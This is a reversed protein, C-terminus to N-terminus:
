QFYWRLSLYPNSMFQLDSTISLANSPGWYNIYQIEGPQIAHDFYRLKSIYGNFGGNMAVYVDGYNQKPVDSLQHLKVLTGNIYVSLVNGNVIIIVNVWKNLPINTIIIEENITTYTNMIVVLANQTPHIYLGPANNPDIIGNDGVSDNGKHFIHKYKGYGYQLDTINIWCSWSFEVGNDENVSRYIPISGSVNPNTSIVMQNEGNVTNKILYPSKSPSLFYIILKTGIILLIIFVIISLIVMFIKQILNYSEIPTGDKVELSDTNLKFDGIGLDDDNSDFLGM